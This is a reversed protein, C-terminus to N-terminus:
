FSITDYNWEKLILNIKGFHDVDNFAIGNLKINSSLGSPHSSTIIKHKNENILHRKEQANKGWLVFIVHDKNQSIYEIIEDTFVKWILEKPFNIYKDDVTLEQNLMLCGQNAWHELNQTAIVNGTFNMVNKLINSLTPTIKSNNTTAFSLGNSKEFIPTMGLFVVKISEFSTLIFANFVLNPLPSIIKCKKLQNELQTEIKNKLTPHKDYIQKFINKWKDCVIHDLNINGKPFKENWTINPDYFYNNIHQVLDNYTNNM